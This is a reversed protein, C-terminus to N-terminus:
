AKPCAVRHWSFGDVFRPHTYGLLETDSRAEHCVIQKLFNAPVRRYEIVDIGAPVILIQEALQDPESLM